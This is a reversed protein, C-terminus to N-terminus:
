LFSMTHLTKRNELKASLDRTLIKLFRLAFMNKSNKEYLLHMIQLEESYAAVLFSLM